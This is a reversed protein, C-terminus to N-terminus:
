PPLIKNLYIHLLFIFSIVVTFNCKNTDREINVFCMFHSSFCLIWWIEETTQNYKYNTVLSKCRKEEKVTCIYLFVKRFVHCCVLRTYVHYYYLSYIFKCKLLIIIIDPLTDWVFHKHKNHSIYKYIYVHINYLLTKTSTQFSATTTKTWSLWSSIWYMKIFIM